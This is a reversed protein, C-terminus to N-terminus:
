YLENVLLQCVGPPALASQGDSPHIGLQPFHITNRAKGAANLYALTAHM